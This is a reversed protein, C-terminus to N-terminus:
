RPRYTFNSSLHKMIAGTKGRVCAGIVRNGDREVLEPGWGPETTKKKRTALTCREERKVETVKVLMSM